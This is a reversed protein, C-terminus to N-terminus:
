KEASQSNARHARIWLDDLAGEKLAKTVYIIQGTHVALHISINFILDFVTPVYDPEDTPDLFRSMDFSGLIAAAQRITEDFTELV